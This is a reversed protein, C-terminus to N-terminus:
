ITTGTLNNINGKMWISIKKCDFFLELFHHDINGQFGCFLLQTFSLFGERSIINDKFFQDAFTLIALRCQKWYPINFSFHIVFALSWIILRFSIIFASLSFKLFLNIFLFLLVILGSLRSLFISFLLLFFFFINIFCFLQHLIHLLPYLPRCIPCKRSVRHIIRLKNIIRCCNFFRFNGFCETNNKVNGSDLWHLLKCSL